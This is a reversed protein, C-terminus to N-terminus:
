QVNQGAMQPQAKALKAQAEMQAMQMQAQAAQAQAQQAQIQAQQMAQKEQALEEESKLRVNRIDIASMLNKTVDLMTLENIVPNKGYSDVTTRYALIARDQEIQRNINISNGVSEFDYNGAWYSKSISKFPNGQQETLQYIFDDDLNDANLNVIFEYLDENTDQLARIMDDFKINGEGVVTAIGTATRNSALGGTEAVAYDMVGFLKQIMGLLFQIKAFEMQESKPLELVRYANPNDSKWKVGPGFPNMEDEHDSPVIVPPNNNISGRDVMQNFTADMMDRMGCLFEPVGKGFFSGEMPIIQYHFFPRVPFPSLMWGLLVKYKPCVFAVIEEDKEDEDIDYSGYWEYIKIPERMAKNHDSAKILLDERIKDVNKFKGEKIDGERRALWDFTKEYTDCIWDLEEIEATDANKPIIVEKITRGYIMPGEYIVKEEQRENKVIVPVTGMNDIPPPAFDEKVEVPKGTQNDMLLEGTLPNQLNRIIKLFPRSQSEWVCKAIGDGEMVVTKFILKMRRYIKIMRTLQYNLAEQVVPAKSVDSQGHGNVWAVPKSGYCVKLFRPLLGEITFADIPIGVDSSNGCWVAKGNRRVYLTHFPTTVCYAFNDYKIIEKKLKSIQLTSKTNITLVYGIHKATIKRGKIEGGQGIRNKEYFSARLGVKQVIEQIDDGLKKSTTYYTRHGNLKTNGDGMILSGILINLLYPELNKYRLPIYKEHCLGLAELEKRAEIPIISNGDGNKSVWVTYQTGNFSYKLNMRNFLDELKGCKIPNVELSQAIQITGSNKHTWGESIYWGLFEMWDEAKFGYLEKVSESHIFNSILPINYSNRDQNFLDKAKVFKAPLSDKHPYFVNGSIWNKNVILMNHDPSVLLDISKGIFNIMEKYHNKQLDIVPMWWAEKTMPNMSYVLDSTTVDKIGIWGRKTLVDTDPSYCGEWPSDKPSKKPDDGWGMLGSISRKAEYRKRYEKVQEIRPQQFSMGEEVERIIFDRLDDEKDRM